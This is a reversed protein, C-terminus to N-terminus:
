KEQTEDMATDIREKAARHQQIQVRLLNSYVLGVIGFVLLAPGIGGVKAILLVLGLAALVISPILWKRQRVALRDADRYYDFLLNEAEPEDFDPELVEPNEEAITKATAILDRNSKSAVIIISSVLTYFWVAAVDAISLLLAIGFVIWGCFSTFKYLGPPYKILKRINPQTRKVPAPAAPETQQAQKKSHESFSLGTGPVGVSTTRQGKTNVTYKFGKGGFTLGLSSKNVNLRVGPMIKISRRFRSRYAM